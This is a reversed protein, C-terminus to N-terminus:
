VLGRCHNVKDEINKIQVNMEVQRGLQKEKKLKERLDAAQKELKDMEKFLSIQEEVSLSSELCYRGTKTALILAIVRKKLDQYLLYLNLAGSIGSFSEIFTNQVDNGQNWSIWESNIIDELVRKEDDAQSIRKDAISFRYNRDNSVILFVPNPMVRHMMEALQNLKQPTKIVVEIVLIENYQREKNSFLEVSSNIASIQYHVLIEQINNRVLRKDGASLLENELFLKKPIKKAVRCEPPFSNLLKELM